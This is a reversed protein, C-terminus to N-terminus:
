STELRHYCGIPVFAPLPTLSM